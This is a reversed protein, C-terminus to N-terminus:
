HQLFYVLFVVIWTVNATVTGGMDFKEALCAMTRCTPSVFVALEVFILIDVLSLM